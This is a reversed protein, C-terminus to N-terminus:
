LGVGVLVLKVGDNLYTWGLNYAENSWEDLGIQSLWCGFLVAIISRVTYKSTIVAVLCFSLFLIGTLEPTRVADNIQMYLPFFSFGLFGFILGNMTSTFLASSLAYSARGKKALPYGDVMTAATGNAGPVGLLVSAYSDGISCAVVTVMSFLVFLYEAGDFFSVVGFLLLIAKGAGASPVLGILGGYVCGLAIIIAWQYVEELQLISEM